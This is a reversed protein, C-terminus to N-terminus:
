LKGELYKKCFTDKDKINNRNSNEGYKQIFYDADKDARYRKTGSIASDIIIRINEEYKKINEESKRNIERIEEEWQIQDALTYEEHIIKMELRDSMDVMHVIKKKYKAM